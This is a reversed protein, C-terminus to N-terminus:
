MPAATSHRINLVALPHTCRASLLLEQNRQLADAVEPSIHGAGKGGDRAETADPVPEPRHDDTDAALSVVQPIGEVSFGFAPFQPLGIVMDRRPHMEMIEANLGVTRTGSEVQILALGEREAMVKGRGDLINGHADLVPLGHKHAFQAEVGNIVVPTYLLDNAEAPAASLASITPNQSQEENPLCPAVQAVQDHEDYKLLARIDLDLTDDQVSGIDDRDSVCQEEIQLNAAQPPKEKEKTCKHGPKWSQQCRFCKKEKRLRERTEADLEDAKRSAIGKGRDKETSHNRSGCHTCRKKKNRSHKSTESKGSSGSGHRRRSTSSSDLTIASAIEDSISTPPDGHNARKWTNVSAARAVQMLDQLSSDLGEIYVAVLTKDDDRRGTRSMLSTFRDSYEQVTEKPRQIITMLERLLKDRIASSEFHHLFLAHVTEWHKEALNNEVWQRDYGNLATLLARFWRERPIEHASLIAKIKALFEFADKISGKRDGRFSPLSSISHYLTRSTGTAANPPEPSGSATMLTTTAQVRKSPRDISEMVESRQKEVERLRNNFKQKQVPDPVHMHQQLTCNAIVSDLSANPVAHVRAHVITHRM